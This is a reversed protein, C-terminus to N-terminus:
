TVREDARRVLGYELLEAVLAHIDDRCEDCTVDYESAVAHCLEEVTRPQQLLDWVYTGVENLGYYTDADTHLIVTEGELKSSLCSNSAVVATSEILSEPNGM